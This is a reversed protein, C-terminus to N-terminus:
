RAASGSKHTRAGAAVLARPRTTARWASPGTGERRRRAHQGADAHVLPRWHGSDLTGRSACSAAPANEPTGPRKERYRGSSLSSRPRGLAAAPGGPRSNGNNPRTSMFERHGRHGWYRGFLPCRKIDALHWTHVAGPQRPV